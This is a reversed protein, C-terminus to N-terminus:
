TTWATSPCCMFLYLFTWPLRDAPLSAEAQVSHLASCGSHHKCQSSSINQEVPLLFTQTTLFVVINEIFIWSLLSLCPLLLDSYNPTGHAPVLDPLYYQACSAFAVTIFVLWVVRIGQLATMWFPYTQSDPSLGLHFIFPELVWFPWLCAVALYQSSTFSFFCYQRISRHFRMHAM